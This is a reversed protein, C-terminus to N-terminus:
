DDLCFVQNRNKRSLFARVASRTAEASLITGVQTAAAILFLTAILAAAALEPLLLRGALAIGVSVALPQGVDALYWRMM